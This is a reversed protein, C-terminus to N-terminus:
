IQSPDPLLHAQFVNAINPGEVHQSAWAQNKALEIPFKKKHLRLADRLNSVASKYSGHFDMTQIEIFGYRNIKLADKQPQSLEVVTIDFSIEPSALTGNISIEGGLKDQFFVFARGDVSLGQNLASRGKEDRLISIPIPPLSPLAGFIAACAGRVIESDIVRYPCVLWDKRVGNGLSNIACVGFANESKICKTNERKVSTLFPCTSWNAGSVANSDLRVEPFIRQGFWESIFNGKQLPKKM